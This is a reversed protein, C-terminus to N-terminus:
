LDVPALRLGGRNGASWDALFTFRDGRITTVRWEIPRGDFTGLRELSFTAVGVGLGLLDRDAGTPVSPSIREWGQNPRVQTTRELEDYLATHQFDADLLPKAFDLPLWVRDIALPEDDALRLRELWVFDTDQPLGLQDAADTNQVVGLHLVESRQVAGGSEVLQFLSYLAGLSQEFQGRNVTTGRGRERKVIGDANLQSVAHRATHRSVQYANTLELDTPFRRAFHGLELRRRLEAELQAWLPLPSTRDLEKADDSVALADSPDSM